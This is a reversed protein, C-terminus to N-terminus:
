VYLGGSSDDVWCYINLIRPAPTIAEPTRLWLPKDRALANSGISFAYRMDIHNLPPTKTLENQTQFRALLVQM